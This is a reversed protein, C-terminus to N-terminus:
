DNLLHCECSQCIHIQVSNEYFRVNVSRYEKNKNLNQFVLIEIFIFRRVVCIVYLMSQITRMHTQVFPDFTAVKKFELVSILEIGLNQSVNFKTKFYKTDKKSLPCNM